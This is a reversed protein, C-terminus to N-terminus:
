TEPESALELTVKDKLLKDYLSQRRTTTMEIELKKDIVIGEDTPDKTPPKTIDLCDDIFKRLNRKKAQVLQLETSALQLMSALETDDVVM